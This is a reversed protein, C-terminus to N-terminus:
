EDRPGRLKRLEQDIQQTSKGKGHRKRGVLPALRERVAPPSVTVVDDDIEFRINDGPGVHLFASVGAPLTLQNKSTLKATFAKRM